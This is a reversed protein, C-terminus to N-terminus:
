FDSFRAFEVFGILVLAFESRVLFEATASMSRSANTYYAIAHSVGLIGRGM